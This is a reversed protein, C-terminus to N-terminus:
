RKNKKIKLQYKKGCSECKVRLSGSRTQSMKGGCGRCKNNECYTKVSENRKTYDKKPFLEPELIKLIKNYEKAIWRGGKELHLGEGMMDGLHVLQRHYYSKDEKSISM